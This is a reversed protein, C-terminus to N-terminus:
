YGEAGQHPARAHSQPHQPWGSRCSVNRVSVVVVGGGTVAIRGSLIFKRCSETRAVLDDIQAELRVIEDRHDNDNM